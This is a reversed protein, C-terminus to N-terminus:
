PLSVPAAPGSEPATGKIAHIHPGTSNGANGALGLVEGRKVAAGTQLLASNLNGKQM